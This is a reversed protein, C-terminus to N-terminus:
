RSAVGPQTGLGSIQSQNGQTLNVASSQDGVALDPNQATQTPQNQVSSQLIQLMKNLTNCGVVGDSTLGNDTQFQKVAQFTKTGFIGDYQKTTNNVPGLITAYKSGLLGQVQKITDGRMGQRFSLRNKCDKVQDMTPVTLPKQGGRTNNNQQTLCGIAYKQWTGSPDALGLWTLISINKPQAQGTPDYTGTAMLQNWKKGDTPDTIPSSMSMYPTNTQFIKGDKTTFGYKPKALSCVLEKFDKDSLGKPFGAKIGYNAETLLGLEQRRKIEHLNLISRKEEENIILRRNYM